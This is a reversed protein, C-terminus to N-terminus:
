VQTATNHPDSKVQKLTSRRNIVGDMWIRTTRGKDRRGHVGSDYSRKAMRVDDMGEVHRLWRLACKELGGPMKNQVGMRREVEENTIRDIRVVGCM